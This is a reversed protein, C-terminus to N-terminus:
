RAITFPLSQRIVGYPGDAIVVADYAGDPVPGDPSNGDWVVQEQGAPLPGAFPTAVVSGSQEIQVTVSVDGALTFVIGLMDGAGDGNPSLTTTALSLASLTRDIAFPAQLTGTRGDEGVAAITLLYSGDPLGDATYPFSQRRAGQKQASFLTAALGGASDTVTATM